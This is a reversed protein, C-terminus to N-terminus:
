KLKTLIVLYFVSDLEHLLDMKFISSRLFQYNIINLINYYMNKKRRANLIRSIPISIITHGTHFIDLTSIILLYYYLNM